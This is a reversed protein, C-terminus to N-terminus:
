SDYRDFLWSVLQVYETYTSCDKLESISDAVSRYYWAQQVPDKQNLKLWIEDGYNFYERCLSRLNSIKDALWIIKVNVDNTEKLVRLSAEKRIKWTDTPPLEALKDETESDVLNAVKEGFIDAIEKITANTDEVTDHLIGAVIVNEDSTITSIISAVELPHLIYPINGFKRTQGSHKETAYCIAKDLLEM